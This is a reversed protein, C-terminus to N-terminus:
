FKIHNFKTSNNCHTKFGDIEILNIDKKILKIVANNWHTNANSFILTTNPNKYKLSKEQVYDFCANLMRTTKSGCNKHTNEEETAIQILKDDLFM